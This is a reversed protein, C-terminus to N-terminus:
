VSQARDVHISGGPELGGHEAFAALAQDTRPELLRFKVSSSGCNLVL